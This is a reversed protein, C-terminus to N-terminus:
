STSPGREGQGARLDRSGTNVPRYEILSQPVHRWRTDQGLEELYHAGMSVTRPTIIFLRALRWDFGLDLIIAAGVGDLNMPIRHGAHKELEDEILTALRCYRGYVGEGRALGLLAPARPDAKHLPIGFGPIRDKAGVATEVIKRALECLTEDDIAAQEREIPGLHRVLLRAFDEGAGGMWDGFALVGGAVAAQIPSGYSALCRSIMSPPAIGHEMSAVLLGELVRAQPKSPEHGQILLFMMEAFSVRGVLDSLRHGRVIVGEHGEASVVDCIGTEWRTMGRAASM